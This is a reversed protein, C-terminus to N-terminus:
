KDTIREYPNKEAGKAKEEKRNLKPLSTSFIWIYKRLFAAQNSKQSECDM